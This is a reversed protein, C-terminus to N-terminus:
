SLDAASYGLVDRAIILRNVEGPGEYIDCVRADRFWMELLHHESAAEAGLIAICEQTIQRAVQGGSAKTVAAEIKDAGRTQEVWKAHVFALKAAEYRAELRVFREVSAPSRLSPTEYDIECGASVLTERTFDLAARAFGLGIAAVFPRSHNFVTLVNKMSGVLKAGAPLRCDVFILNATDWTRQGLKELPPGVSFGAIGKDVVFIGLGSELGDRFRAFVLVSDCSHALSIFIKEGNLVWGSGDADRVALARIMSPDSGASPETLAIAISRDNWLDIQEPTGLVELLKNGLFVSRNSSKRFPITGWVEELYLLADMLILGSSEAARAQLLQRVNPEHRAEPLEDPVAEGSREYHRARSRAILAQRHTLRLLEFDFPTPDFDVM